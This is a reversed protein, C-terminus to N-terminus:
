VTRRVFSHHESVQAPNRKRLNFDKETKDVPMLHGYRFYGVTRQVEMGGSRGRSRELM